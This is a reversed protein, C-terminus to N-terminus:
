FFLDMFYVLIRRIVLMLMFIFELIFVKFKLLCSIRYYSLFIRLEVNFKVNVLKENIKILYNIIFLIIKM